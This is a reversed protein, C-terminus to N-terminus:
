ADEPLSEEQKQRAFLNSVTPYHGFFSPPLALLEIEVDCPERHGEERAELSCARVCCCVQMLILTRCECDTVGAASSHVGPGSM